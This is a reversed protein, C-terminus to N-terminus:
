ICFIYELEAKQDSAYLKQQLFGKLLFTRVNYTPVVNDITVIYIIRKLVQLLDIVNKKKTKKIFKFYKVKATLRMVLLNERRTSEVKM